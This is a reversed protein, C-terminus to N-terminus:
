LPVPALKEPLAENLGTSSSAGVIAFSQIFSNVPSPYASVFSIVDDHHSQPQLLFVESLSTMSLSRPFTKTDVWGM